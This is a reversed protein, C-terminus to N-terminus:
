RGEEVMLRLVGREPYDPDNDLCAIEQRGIALEGTRLAEDSPKGWRQFTTIRVSAGGAEQEAAAYLPSLYVPQGFTLQDSHFLAPQGDPLLRSGFVQRLAREVDSPSHGAQTRVRMEIDLPVLRPSEVEMDQGAMRYSELYRRLDDEFTPDVELGGLRDVILFVTQWSGTWRLAAAARQVGPHREAARAYDDPTVAREQTRFASPAAQRVQEITEADLGGQAPLVNSVSEIEPVNAVIHALTGAGVNGSAGNGVRYVATFVPPEPLEGYEDDGFRLHSVGGDDTEVVFHRDHPGSELLDRQPQWENPDHQSIDHLVVEPLAKRLDCRMAATASTVMARPGAVGGRQGHAAYPNPAARTLPGRELAIAHRRPPVDFLKKKMEVVTLGHDALVVNGLAVTADIVDPLGGAEGARAICFPFPLADEPHWEIETIAVQTLPDRLSQGDSGRAKAKTLRVAHRHGPDALGPDGTVPDRVEQLVLVDGAELKPYSGRLTAGTAGKPLCDSRASWTYFPLENHDQYLAAIPAMTEFVVAGREVAQAYAPSDPRIVAGEDPIATLLPTGKALLVHDHAKADQWVRIQVWARANCGDHMFYDVLRAHRRVSIRRRATGFHGEVATADQRYSLQDAVHALLEVLAVGLDAPHREKWQPMLTAMRDLMLQRFSAYDKALYNIEPAPHREGGAAREPRCDLDSPSAAQFSFPVACLQPDFGPPPGPDDESAVLRLTYTSFDGVKDVTVTLQDDKPDVGTVRLDKIRVGGAVAANAPNWTMAPQKLRHILQVRLIRADGADVELFDIGNLVFEGNRETTRVAERREKNEGPFRTGM